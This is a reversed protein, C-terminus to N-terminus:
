VTKQFHHNEERKKERRKDERKRERQSKFEPSQVQLATVRSSSDCRWDM